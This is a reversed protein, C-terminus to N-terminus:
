ATNIIRIGRKMKQFEKISKALPEDFSVYESGEAIELSMRAMNHYILKM